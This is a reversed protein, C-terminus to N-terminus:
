VGAECCVSIRANEIILFHTLLALSPRHSLSLSFVILGFIGVECLWRMSLLFRFSCIPSVLLM